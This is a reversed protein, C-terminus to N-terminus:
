QGPRTLGFLAALHVALLFSIAGFMLMLFRWPAMRPGKMLDPPRAGRWGAFLTVVLCTALLILTLSLSVADLQRCAVKM